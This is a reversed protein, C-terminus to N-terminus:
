MQFKVIPAYECCELRQNSASLIDQDAMFDTKRWSRVPKDSGTTFILTKTNHLADKEQSPISLCALSITVQSALHHELEDVRVRLNLDLEMPGYEVFVYRLKDCKPDFRQFRIIVHITEQASSGRIRENASM